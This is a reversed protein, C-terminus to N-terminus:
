WSRAGSPNPAHLARERDRRRERQQHQDRGAHREGQEIRLRQARGQLPLRRAREPAVHRQALERQLHKRQGRHAHRLDAHGARLGGIRWERLDRLQAQAHGHQRQERALDHQARELDVRRAHVDREVAVPLGDQGARRL